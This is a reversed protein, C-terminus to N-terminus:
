TSSLKLVMVMPCGLGSLSPTDEAVAGSMPRAEGEGICNAELVCIWESPKCACSSTFFEPARNTIEVFQQDLNVLYNSLVFLFLPLIV